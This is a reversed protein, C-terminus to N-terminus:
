LWKEFKFFFGCVPRTLAPIIGFLIKGPLALIKPEMEPFGM